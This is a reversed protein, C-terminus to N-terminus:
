RYINEFKNRIKQEENLLFLTTHIESIRSKVDNIIENLSAIESKTKEFNDISDVILDAKELKSIELEPNRKPPSCDIRVNKDSNSYHLNDLNNPLDCIKYHPNGCMELNQFDFIFDRFDLSKKLNSLLIPILDLYDNLASSFNDSVKAKFFVIICFCNRKSVMFRLLYHLIGYKHYTKITDATNFFLETRFDAIGNMESISKWAYTKLTHNSYKLVPVKFMLEHIERKAAESCINKSDNSRIFNGKKLLLGCGILKKVNYSARQKSLNLETAIEQNTLFNKSKKVITLIKEQIKSMKKVTTLNKVCSACVCIM